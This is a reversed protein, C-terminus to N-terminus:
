IEVSSSEEQNKMSFETQEAIKVKLLLDDLEEQSYLNHLVPDTPKLNAYNWYTKERISKVVKATTKILKVIQGDSLKPYNQILWLAAAPKIGRKVSGSKPLGSKKRGSKIYKIFLRKTEDKECEDIDKQDVEGTSRPDFAILGYDSNAMANVELENLDCADAIQSFTLSTNDIFWVAAAKRMLPSTM